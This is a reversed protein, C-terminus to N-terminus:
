DSLEDVKEVAKWLAAALSVWWWADRAAQVRDLMRQAIEGQRARLTALPRPPELEALRAALSALTRPAADPDLLQQQCKGSDDRYLGTLWTM